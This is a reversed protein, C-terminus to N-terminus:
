GFLTLNTCTDSVNMLDLINRVTATQSETLGCTSAVAESDLGSADSPRLSFLIPVVTTGVGFITALINSLTKLDVVREGVVFGLGQKTNQRDLILEVRRVAHEHMLDDNPGKLRKDTLADSIGDCDSSAAAADYVVALPTIVFVVVLIATTMAGGQLFAVFFGTACLWFGLFNTAVVAGWGDSLLPLTETCLGLVSPLVELEWEASGPTCREVKQRTESVADAVLASAMKLTLWLPWLAVSTALFMLGTVFVVAAYSETILRDTLKSRTGVRTASVFSLLAVMIFIVFGVLVWAHSRRLARYSRESIKTNGAGLLALQGGAATVRGLAIGSGVM